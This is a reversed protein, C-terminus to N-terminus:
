ARFLRGELLCAALERYVETIRGTSPRSGFARLMRRALPGASVIQGATQQLDACDAPVDRLVVSAIHQWLEGVRCRRGAYGFVRLLERDDVITAEGDTCSRLLLAALRETPLARLAAADVWGGADLARLTREILLAIALDARPTEQVDLLRIEIADRDFRAIAGRSNLFEHQLIGQPDFPAIDRYTRQLIQERYGRETFVPEPVIQGAISPVREQNRRYVEIRNDLRGTLRGDMMPSSAALGPLLPLVARIAAHLRGFEDDGCFPLNIHCSQLNSWGHGSCGFIRDYAEYIPSNEHPWLRAQTLPDMTPHMATPLLMGGLPALIADIRAIDAGFRESWGALSPTPGNTKLEIVHLVLENSWAVPGDEYDSAYSGTVARLVEDSVPLVALTDRAVIMYELEIGFAAFLHLPARDSM